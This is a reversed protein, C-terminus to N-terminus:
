QSIPNFNDDRLESIYQMLAIIDKVNPKIIKTDAGPIILSSMNVLNVEKDGLGAERMGALYQLGAVADLIGPLTNSKENYIKGRQFNFSVPDPLAVHELNEDTLDLFRITINSPKSASGTLTFPVFVLESFNSAGTTSAGSIIAKGTSKGLNPSFMGLHAQDFLDLITVEATNFEVQIKYGTLKKASLINGQADKFNNIGIFLGVSDGDESNQGVQILSTAIPPTGISFHIITVNSAQDTVVLEYSGKTTVEAGSAFAVGNLTATGENFTPYVNSDYVYHEEVGQVVPPATDITFKVTTINGAQNTVILEYSGDITIVSSSEFIDGNLTAIGDEFSPKVATNYIKGNEVGIVIPAQNSYTVIRTLVTTNGALDKAEITLTNDGLELTATYNFIGNSDISVAKGNITVSSGSDTKGNVLTTDKNTIIKDQPSDVTLLPPQTDITFKVKSTNGANDTVVLEYDGNETVTTGSSFPQNNLTATGENFVPTLSTNYIKNNELGTVFPVTLDIIFNVTSSNGAQDTVVLNYNGEANVESGSNFPQDNLIGTGENFTPKVISGYTKNSEVGLIVPPTLDIAFRITTTLGWKSTVILEYNGEDKVETGSIFSQGNITATGNTFTPIVSKSYVKGDEIGQLNAPNDDYIVSHSVTTTNGAKDIAMIDVTNKGSTLNVTTSFSGDSNVTIINEDVKISSSLEVNGSVIINYKDTILGETPNNVTLSPPTHDIIFNVTTINGAQNTVVLSYNGESDVETGSDFPKDNLTATGENFTPKMAINYSNGNEVGTVIPPTLDIIFQVSTVNGAQDAVVLEHNGETTIETGSVYDTGDLKGTGETFTPSVSTAYIKGNEVGTVVPATMDISFQVSTVNGAQDTVVLEHNGEANIETGSTYDAGDLKATGETFTPKVSTAYFKNNEIGQVTPADTDITYIETYVSSLNGVEDKAMFKLTSSSSIDIPAGYVQSSTRPESGDTTFYISAPESATLSVTQSFNFLGGAPSASVTPAVSDITYTEVYVSSSNRIKDIAIFNLVLDKDITIPETYIPSQENPITGDLTYHIVGLLSASLAVQQPLNYIGGVPNAHAVSLGRFNQTQMTWNLGDESTEIVGWGNINQGIALFMNHTFISNKIEWFSETENRTWNIGDSSNLVTNGNAFILSKGNVQFINDFYIMEHTNRLSIKQWNLGDESVWIMGVNSAFYGPDDVYQSGVVIYKDGNFIINDLADASTDFNDLLQQTWDTGNTSVLINGRYSIAIFKGKGWIIERIPENIQFTKNWTIGDLSELITGNYRDTGNFNFTSAVYKSGDFSMSTIREDIPTKISTWETGNDSELINGYYGIPAFLKSGFQFIKYIHDNAQVLQKNWNIGDQSTLITGYDGAAVFKTGDWIVDRLWNETNSQREDWKVGDKSTLITGFAGVNVITEGNSSASFLSYTNTSAIVAKTNTLLLLSSIVISMLWIRKLMMRKVGKNLIRGKRIGGKLYTEQM